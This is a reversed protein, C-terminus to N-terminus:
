GSISAMDLMIMFSTGKNITSNVEISGKHAIIINQTNTLGLGTGNSKGTFYADFIKDLAERNIGHGNDTFTVQCRSGQRETKIKLVGRGKSMAEVANLIINLFAIKLKDADGFVDCINEDYEKELTVGELAIRDRAIELTDDLIRNISVRAPMIEQLKTANLLESVLQNIRNSNRQITELLMRADREIQFKDILQDCSLNINTLPNRVEHAIMRAIRGTTTFKQLSRFKNLELNAETLETIKQELEAAYSRSMQYAIRKASNENTFVFWSYGGLLIAIILIALNIWKMSGSSNDLIKSRVRLLAKEAVQMDGLRSSIKRINEQGASSLGTYRSSDSLIESRTAGFLNFIEDLRTRAVYDRGVDGHLQDMLSDISNFDQLIHYKKWEQAHVVEGSLTGEIDKVQFQLSELSHLIRNTKAVWQIHYLLQDTTFVSYGFAIILLFFAAGFGFRVKNSNSIKM